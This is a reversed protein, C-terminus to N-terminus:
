KLGTRPRAMVETLKSWPGSSLSDTYQLTYTKNSIANFRLSTPGGSVIEVKLYSQADRPDTGAMYEQWNTLGDGDSDLGADAANNPDLHYATEWDDPIGDGDTDNVFNLIAPASINGFPKAANTVVVAYNTFPWQANTVTFFATRQNLVFFANTIYAANRRWRYGIPLTATNTVSVSFTVTAGTVVNQSLPQQVIFPDVLVLLNATQSIAVGVANSVVAQYTGEHITQANTIVLTNTTLSILSAGNFSWHYRLPANGVAGVTFVANSSPRVFQNTPQALILPAAPVATFEFTGAAYRDAPGGDLSAPFTGPGTSGSVGHRSVGVFSIMGGGDDTSWTKANGTGLNGNPNNNDYGYSVVTYSGPNLLLPTALPKFRSGDVLTGPDTSSFTLSALLSGSNGNRTFIQTTLPVSAFIGNGGSDFAGLRSVIVPTIVDFDMGLGNPYAQTGVTGAEVVYAINNTRTATISVTSSTTVEGADDTASAMLSHRGPHANAWVLSYPRATVRGLLSGDAFFEVKLVTGDLDDASAELVINTPLTFTSGNTPILISISPPHNSVTFSVPASLTVGLRNDTARATLTHPGAPANSWAIEFLLGTAQGAKVGDVFFEVQRVFGDGDSANARLLIPLGFRVNDGDAPATLIIIPPANTRNVGGPSVGNAFWNTPENGYVELPARQLSSGTGQAGTPWPFTGSYNVRDVLIAPVFGFDPGPTGVPVGPKVLELSDSTNGLKGSYGGFLRTAVPVDYAALFNSLSLVNTAPDFPLVLVREGPTLTTNAPFTFDVGGRIGWRNAPNAADFLDVSAASVNALEIFEYDDGNGPLPPPHYQIESIVVPGVVAGANTGGSTRATQAWFDVGASTPVRGFSVNADAGGFKVSSRVGTLNGAADAASLFVEDGHAGDLGFPNSSNTDNFQAEHFVAFGGSAVPALPPIRFKKLQAISDSLFWGSIDITVNSLNLLEVEDELPPLSHSLVENIAVTNLRLYNPDEPSASGPFSVINTSGDLLRGQSVDTTQPGFTISDVLVLNTDTILISEGKASLKFNVHRAGSALVQDAIFQRFGFPAIFSLAAIRTNTRNGAADSLYLGGLAVSLPDPNFLEFWDPGTSSSAMWENVKLSTAFGLAAAVNTANPTPENLVWDSGLRGISHDPVQLGYVVSDALQYGNPTVAFLAVTQGDKNLAFGTHLGAANTADDCWVTLFEHAPMIVGPPFIFKGPREPNDSLSFQDLAQPVGAANFLEIYDPSTNGNTVSGRNDAMIESLRINGAGAPVTAELSLGFTVASSGIANRHVEAALINQGRNLASAPIALPGEYVAHAVNRSALTTNNIPGGSMGTRSAEVGNLYVVVGDDIIQRLRLTVGNTDGPFDFTKRFYFTIFNSRVLPTRIPEPLVATDDALLAAGQPWSSDDFELMTWNPPPNTGAQNYRWAAAADITVLAVVAPAAGFVFSTEASEPSPHGNADTYFCKWFYTEGFALQDFPIPLSTLNIASTLHVVPNSYGGLSRRILWTASAQAVLGTHAYSSAQLLAPPFAASNSGPALNVPPQPASWAGLALETDVRIQRAGAYSALGGAGIANLNAPSLLTHNLIFLKQRYEDRFVKLFSDKVWHPGRLTDPQPLAQEDWYISQSSNSFESDLDWPLLGWSGDGKRWLFYNQTVDDFPASWNRIAIYTLTADVDFNAQLFARVAAGNLNPATPSDGRAAWLAAVIQQVDQGGRWKDMQSAYTWDYRAPLTWGPKSPIPACNGIYYPGEGSAEYTPAAGQGVGTEYPVVGESKYFAGMGEMPAGPFKAAQETAWRGYLDADMEDQELRTLLSDTNQYIDVYRCRWIPLEVVDYLKSGLRHEEGKDTEFYSTRGNFPAYNPFQYKYSRRTADRRYRSGHYRMRIDYVRGDAVFIAPETANWSARPAGPPDPLSVRRPSQNINAVLKALSVTSIFVEYIPNASSRQPTVFYAHWAFPDDARPSVVEVGSGRDARIQYRVVSRNTQGPLTGTYRGDSPDALPALAVTFRAENTLNVNDLFYEVSVNSLQNTGSFIADLRVPQNSRTITDGNSAQVVSFAIVIPLPTPLQVSNTRGPTPGTALPSALWNAPDNAPSSFSVRELSRGRYQFNASNLGTWEDDAGLADAGIAWPFSSSYSVSEVVQGSPDRLRISDGSNGLQGSYPGLIQNTTLGYQAVAALQAPDSAIIVFGGPQITVSAPFDFSVGGGLRWGELSVAVASPNHLEIFEHVDGSLDLVPAGNSDFAALEVPHYLIESIFVQAETSRVQVLGAMVALLYLWSKRIM